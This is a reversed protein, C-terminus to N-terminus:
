YHIHLYTKTLPSNKSLFHVNLVTHEFPVELGSSASDWSWRRRMSKKINAIGYILTQTAYTRFLLCLALHRNKNANLFRQKTSRPVKIDWLWCKELNKGLAENWERWHESYTNKSFVSVHCRSSSSAANSRGGSFGGFSTKWKQTFFISILCLCLCMRKSSQGWISIVFSLSLTYFINFVDAKNKGKDNSNLSM